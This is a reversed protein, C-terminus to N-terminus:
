TFKIDIEAIEDASFESHSSMGWDTLYKFKTVGSTAVFSDTIIPTVISFANPMTCLRGDMM